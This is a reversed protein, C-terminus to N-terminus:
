DLISLFCTAIDTEEQGTEAARSLRLSLGRHPQLDWARAVTLERAPQGLDTGPLHLLSVLRQGIRYRHRDDEGALRLLVARGNKAGHTKARGHWRPFDKRLERSAHPRERSRRNRTTAVRPRLLSSDLAMTPRGPAEAEAGRGPSRSGSRDDGGDCHPRGLQSHLKGGRPASGSAEAVAPRGMRDRRPRM